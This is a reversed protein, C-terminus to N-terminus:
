GVGVNGVSALDMMGGAEQSKAVPTWRSNTSSDCGARVDLPSLMKKLGPTLKHANKTDGKGLGGSMCVGSKRSGRGNSQSQDAVVLGDSDDSSNNARAVRTSPHFPPPRRAPRGRKAPPRPM